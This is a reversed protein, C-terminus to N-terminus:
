RLNPDSLEKELRQINNIKQDGRLTQGAPTLWIHNKLLAYANELQKRGGMGMEESLLSTKQRFDGRGLNSLDADLLYRSLESKPRDIYANGNETLRTDHIMSQVLMIEEATFSGAEGMAKAAMEAAVSENDVKQVLYGADHYAAAIGLLEIQRSPLHDTM